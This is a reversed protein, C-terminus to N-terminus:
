KNFWAVHTYSSNIKGQKIESPIAPSDRDYLSETAYYGSGDYDIFLGTKVCDVFEDLTMLDTYDPEIPQWRAM